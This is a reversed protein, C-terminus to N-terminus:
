EEKGWFGRIMNKIARHGRKFLHIQKRKAREVERVIEDKIGDISSYLDGTTVVSRFQKDGLSLNIEARFIDGKQHHNTTKGVEVKALAEVEEEVFKELAKLKKEIYEVISPTLEMNTGKYHFKLM